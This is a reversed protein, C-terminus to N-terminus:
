FEADGDADGALFVGPVGTGQRDSTEIRGKEKTRCGLATPLECCAASSASFFIADAEIRTGQAGVIGDLQGNQHEVRLLPEECWGIGNKSLRERDDPEITGGNTAVVVCDSWQTLMLGLRVTSGPSSGTAVLRSNRHEYGDCYPCHHVSIGYCERFGPIEPLQDQIGTAFLLKRGRFESGDELRVWFMTQTAGDHQESESRAEIVRGEISRVDVEEIQRRGAARLEFPTRGEAGLYGNVRQARANRPEGSDVVLVSRLARGLVLAASLGAPGGGVILVDYM